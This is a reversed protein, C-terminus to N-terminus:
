VIKKMDFFVDGGHVSASLGINEFGFKEYYEILHQECTLIIGARNDQKSVEILHNILAGAYGLNQYKPLIALGFVSQWRGNELHLNVDKFMQDNIKDYNTVMGNIFGIVETDNEIVWFHKPFKKIRDSFTDITAAQNPPFCIQEIHVIQKLDILTVNRINM